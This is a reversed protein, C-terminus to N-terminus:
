FSRIHQLPNYSKKFAVRKTNAGVEAFAKVDGNGFYAQKKDVGGKQCYTKWKDNVEEGTDHKIEPLINLTLMGPNSIQPLVIHKTM